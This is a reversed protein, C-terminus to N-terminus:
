CLCSVNVFKVVGGGRRWGKRMRIRRKGREKMGGKSVKLGEWGM